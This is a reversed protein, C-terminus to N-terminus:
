SSHRDSSRVIFKSLKFSLKSSRSEVITRVINGFRIQSHYRAEHQQCYQIMSQQKELGILADLTRSTFCNQPKKTLDVKKMLLVSDNVKKAQEFDLPRSCRIKCKHAPVGM